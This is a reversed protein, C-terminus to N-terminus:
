QWELIAQVKRGVKNKWSPGSQIAKEAARKELESYGGVITVKELSGLPNIEITAKGTTKTPLKPLTKALFAEYKAWGDTPVANLTDIKIFSLPTASASSARSSMTGPAIKKAADSAKQKAVVTENLDAQKNNINGEDSAVPKKRHTAVDQTNELKDNMTKSPLEAVKAFTPQNSDALVAAANNNESAALDTTSDLTIVPGIQESKAVDPSNINDSNTLSFIWWGAALVFSAAVAYQVWRYRTIGVVATKEEKKQEPQSAIKKARSLIEADSMSERMLQYGEVADALLDDDVMSREFAHNEERGMKGSLYRIINEASHQTHNDQQGNM